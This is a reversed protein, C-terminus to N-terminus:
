GIGSRNASEKPIQVVKINLRHGSARARIIGAAARNLSATALWRKLGPLRSSRIVNTRDKIIAPIAM